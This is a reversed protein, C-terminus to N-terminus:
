LHFGRVEALLIPSPTMGKSHCSRHWQLESWLLNEDKDLVHTTGIETELFNHMAVYNISLNPLYQSQFVTDLWRLPWIFWFISMNEKTTKGEGFVLFFWGLHSKPSSKEEGAKISLYFILIRANGFVERFRKQFPRTLSQLSHSTLTPWWPPFVNQALKQANRVAQTQKDRETLARVSVSHFVRPAFTQEKYSARGPPAGM